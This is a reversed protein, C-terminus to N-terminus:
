PSRERSYGVNRSAMPGTRCPVISPGAWRLGRESLDPFVAKTSLVVAFTFVGYVYISARKAM